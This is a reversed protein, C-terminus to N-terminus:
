ACGLLAEAEREGGVDPVGYNRIQVYLTVTEFTQEYWSEAQQYVRVSAAEIRGM